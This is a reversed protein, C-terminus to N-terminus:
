LDVEEETGGELLEFTGSRCLLMVELVGWWAANDPLLWAGSGFVYLSAVVPLCLAIMPVFYALGLVAVPIGFIVSQPSTTVKTCNIAGTDSCVLALHNVGGLDFEENRWEM